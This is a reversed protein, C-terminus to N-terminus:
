EEEDEIPKLHEAEDDSLDELYTCVVKDDNFFGASFNEERIDGYTYGNDNRLYIPTDGSAYWDKIEELKNILEDITMTTGCQDPSYGSRTGKIFLAKM